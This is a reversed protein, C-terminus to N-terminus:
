NQRLLEEVQEGLLKPSFPKHIVADAGAALLEEKLDLERFGTVVIIPVLKLSEQSRFGRVMELGNMGPIQYDLIALDPRIETASEFARLGNEFLYSDYGLRALSLQYLRLTVVEDDAVLVRNKMAKVEV